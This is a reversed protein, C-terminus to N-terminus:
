NEATVARAIAHAVQRPASLADGGLYGGDLSGKVRGAFTPLLSPGPTLTCDVIMTVEGSGTIRKEAPGATWHIVKLEILPPQRELPPVIRQTRVGRENLDKELTEVLALAARPSDAVQNVQPEVSVHLYVFDPPVYDEIRQISLWSAGGGCASLTACLWVVGLAHVVRM